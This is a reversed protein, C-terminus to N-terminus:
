PRPQEPTERQPEATEPRPEAPVSPSGESPSRVGGPSPSSGTAGPRTGTTGPTTSDDCTMSLMRVSTVRLTPGAATAGAAANASGTTSASSSQLTGTIEVRHNLHPSVDATQGELQYTTMGTGTTGVATRSADGTSAMRGNSLIFRQGAPSPAAQDRNAQGPNAGPARSATAAPANQVCGTVTVTTPTRAQASPPAPARQVGPPAASDPPPTNAPNPGQAGLAATAALASAVFLGSWYKKM